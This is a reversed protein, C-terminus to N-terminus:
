GHLKREIRRLATPTNLEGLFDIAEVFVVKHNRIFEDVMSAFNENELEYDFIDTNLVMVGDKIGFNFTLVSLDEDLCRKVNVASPIEDGYVLLFREDNLYERTNLFSYANGKDSGTVYRVRKGHYELGIFDKIQSALYKVVIVVEDVEDPLSDLVYTIIPKGNIKLMPKPTKATLPMMRVGKGSALIIAKM